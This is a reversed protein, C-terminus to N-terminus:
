CLLKKGANSGLPDVSYGMMLLKSYGVFSEHSPYHSSEWLDATLMGVQDVSSLTSAISKIGM